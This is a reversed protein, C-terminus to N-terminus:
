QPPLGTSRRVINRVSGVKMSTIVQENPLAKVVVSRPVPVRNESSSVSQAKLTAVETKIDKIENTLSQLAEIIQLNADAQVTTTPASADKVVSKIVEAVQSLAPQIAM